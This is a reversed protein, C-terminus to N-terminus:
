TSYQGATTSRGDPGPTGAADRHGGRQAAVGATVVLMIGAVQAVDPQQRLVVLGLTTGIAPELAMLTGFAGATLRRLALMELAYPLVPLLIALGAAAAVDSVTLRGAAQGVGVVAATLAAIPVAVALGTLGSLRDGVAQTLLIYGAWGAAALLAIAIGAADVDGRWPQTLLVVGVLAVAPWSLARLRHSRAAAVTLPGLFEIAVCTGLPLREIAALFAVTQVGTTVGLAILAPFDRRTIVRLRRRALLLFVVAGGTLRLWATGAAGVDHIVDISLAAGLQVSLMATVAMAWAPVGVRGGRGIM